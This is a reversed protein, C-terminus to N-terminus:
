AQDQGRSKKDSALGQDRWAEIAAVLDLIRRCEELGLKELRMLGMLQLGELDVTVDGEGTNVVISKIELFPLLRPGDPQRGELREVAAKGEALGCGTHTRLLKIAAIRQQKRVLSEVEAIVPGPLRFHTTTGWYNQTM